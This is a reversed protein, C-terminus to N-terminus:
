RYYRGTNFAIGGAGGAAENQAVALEAEYDKKLAQKGKSEFFDITKLMIEKSRPDLHEYRNKKPNLLM